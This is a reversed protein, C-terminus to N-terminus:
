ILARPCSRFDQGGAAEMEWGSAARAPMFVQKQFHSKSERPHETHLPRAQLLWSPDHHWEAVCM